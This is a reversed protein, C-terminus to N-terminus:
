AQTVVWKHRLRNREVRCLRVIDTSSLNLFPATLAPIWAVANM